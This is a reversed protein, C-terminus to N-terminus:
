KEDKKVIISNEIGKLSYIEEYECALIEKGSYNILGYQNNFLLVNHTSRYGNDTSQIVKSGNIGFYANGKVTSGFISYVTNLSMSMRYNPYSDGLGLQWYGDSWEYRIGNRGYPEIENHSGIIYRASSDTYMLSLEWKFGDTSSFGTDIYQTGTSEIYNLMKYGELSVTFYGPSSTGGDIRAFTKNINASNYVTGAGGVLKTANNFM